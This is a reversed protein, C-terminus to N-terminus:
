GIFGSKKLIERAEAKDEENIMIV